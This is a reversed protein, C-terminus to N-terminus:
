IRFTAPNEMQIVRKQALQEIEEETCGLEALIERNHQGLCPPAIRYTVPTESFRIPNSVIKIDGYPAGSMTRFTQMYQVQPNEVVEPYTLVEGCWVDKEQLIGIWEATTKEALVDATIRFIRDRYIQGDEWTKYELLGPCDLADALKDFPAMALALYGDKTRHIGYPSNILPHALLEKSRVPLQGANLYTTYEQTQTEILSSLLDVSVMQGKGTRDRYYLAALIGEVANQGAMADAVFAGLPIPCDGERGANWTVGSLGQILLDQGPRDAYPGDQGYGTVSCYILGPNRAKLTEYDIALKRHVAPRFNSLFVDAKDVLRLFLERGEPAKLDLTLSRKNRNTSIFSTNMEESVWGDGIPRVRTWEGYGTPEIKIVDAGMDGLRQSAVPGAMHHSLDVVRLGSLPMDAM